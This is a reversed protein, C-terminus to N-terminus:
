AHGATSKPIRTVMAYIVPIVLLTLATSSFLGGIVVTALEAAMLVGEGLGFALPVMAIMTTLATMLIPRLRTRAGDVLAQEPAVGGRRLQEVVAILVVANTLVIGVLMLIGMLASVGLPRGAVLLGLMAGISALPLSVMIILPNRFSRFTFILVIYALVVAAPIAIFMASFSKRMDEAIGGTSIEVGEPLEMDAVEAQIALTAAGVNEDGVRASITAAIKGDVRPIFPLQDALTVTALDGLRIKQPFGVPLQEATAPSTIRDAVGQVFLQRPTGDLTAQGVTAGAQLMFFEQQLQQLQALPLGLSMAKTVDPTIVLGPRPHPLELRINTLQQLARRHAEARRGTVSGGSELRAVLQEASARVDDYNDGRVTVEIGQAMGSSMAELPAAIIRGTSTINAMEGNLAAALQTVDTGPATLVRINATNGAAPEVLMGSPSSGSGTLTNFTTVEPHSALVAEVARTVEGMTAPSTGEPLEIDVTLINTNMEPLFTTGVVPVIMFSALFLVLAISVTAARHRLCWRLLRSYWRLYWTDSPKRAAARPVLYGALVPVVTLAILLSGILAYTITLGFPIFMEGVIGGVFILPVFIVVTAITSSTIPGVVERTGNIAATFFPEGEQMRRFLVELIVISNDIVRGVAIVMAGLTLINITINTARMILFGILLSLPISVATVLSARFAALFIFVVVIALASGLLANNTLDSVSAEIYESQDLIISIQLGEPLTRSLEAAADIVANATTVTNAGAQRTVSINVSPRGNTRSITAGPPTGLSVEAIQALTLGDPSIIAQRVAEISDFPARSLSASLQAMSVNHQGMKAPDPSVLVKDGTGGQVSVSFVGELKELAPVVEDLAIQRLAETPMDGHLSLIVVPMVTLDIPYIRPNEELGPITATASRVAAPLEVEALREALEANIKEMNSGYEFMLFVVSQNAYSTSFTHNLDPMDAVAQEIPVTVEEAVTEPQAQPYVTIITTMPLSIDPLLEMKLTLLAWVSAGTVAATILLTLWRKKLALRTLWTM